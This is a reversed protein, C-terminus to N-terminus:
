TTRKEQLVPRVPVQEKKTLGALIGKPIGPLQRSHMVKVNPDGTFNSENGSIPM